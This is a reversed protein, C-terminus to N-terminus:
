VETKNEFMDISYLRSFFFGTYNKMMERYEEPKIEGGFGMADYVVNGEKISICLKQLGNKQYFKSRSVRQAYNDANKDLTELALFFRRGSYLKHIKQLVASGIGKGRQSDNLAFYFVYSLDLHNIIYIMGVWKNENYIALFDVDERKARKILLYFPAREEAPFATFYLQRLKRYEPLKKTVRKFEINM